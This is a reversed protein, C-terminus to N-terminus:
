GNNKRWSRILNVFNRKPHVLFEMSSIYVAEILGRLLKLFSFSVTLERFGSKHYTGFEKSRLRFLNKGLFRYYIQLRQQFRKELECKSLYKPGYEQLFILQEIILRNLRTASTTQSSDHLRSFTLIQHVFGFDSDRLIDYCATQDLLQLYRKNYFSKRRRILEARILYIQTTNQM